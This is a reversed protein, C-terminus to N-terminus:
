SPVNENSFAALFDQELPHMKGCIVLSHLPAGLDVNVLTELSCSVIKQSPSGIRAVAVVPENKLLTGEDPKRDIIRVLQDAAQAATMFRPPDYKIKGRM